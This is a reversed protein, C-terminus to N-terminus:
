KQGEKKRAYIARSLLAEGYEEMHRLQGQLLGIESQDLPLNALAFKAAAVKEALAMYEVRLDWILKDTTKLGNSM